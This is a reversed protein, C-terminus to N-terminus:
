QIILHQDELVGEPLKLNESKKDIKRKQVEGCLDMPDGESIAVEILQRKGLEAVLQDQIKEKRVTKKRTWKKAKTTKKAKTHSGKDLKSQVFKSIVVNSLSEAVSEVESHSKEGEVNALGVVQPVMAPTAVVQEVEVEKGRDNGVTPNKSSEAFLSKSCSSSSNEKKIESSFKPLPSARLWLGFPLEKEEIDEFEAEEKGDMEECDKIQHGIKGCVFCFTPLREYKFFVRLDKGQYKVVTGRKLPKRLDILTKVRLFKGLRNGDKNDVEIFNGLLDGLRKAMADSRLRLPLDYIRAWVEGTHMEIDSPQEDGSIRKLVVLNRDFSWPGNKLVTEADRKSTFHFLFLNKNLDQVEIPNKLRWAQTIV